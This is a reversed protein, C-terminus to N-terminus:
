PFQTTREYEFLKSHENYNYIERKDNKYDVFLRAPLEDDETDITVSDIENDEIAKMIKELREHAAQMLKMMEM